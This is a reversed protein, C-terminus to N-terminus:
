HQFIGIGVLLIYSMPNIIKIWINLKFEELTDKISYLIEKKDVLYLQIFIDCFKLIGAMIIGFEVIECVFILWLIYAFNLKSLIFLIKSEEFRKISLYLYMFANNANKLSYSEVLELFVYIGILIIQM